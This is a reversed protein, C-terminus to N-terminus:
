PDGMTAVIAEVDSKEWTKDGRQAAVQLLDAELVTQVYVRVCEGKVILGARIEVPQEPHPTGDNNNVTAAYSLLVLSNTMQTM